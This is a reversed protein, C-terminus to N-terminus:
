WCIFPEATPSSHTTSKTSLPLRSVSLMETSPMRITPKTQTAAQHANYREEAEEVLENIGRNDTNSLASRVEPSLCM